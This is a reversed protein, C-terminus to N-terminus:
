KTITCLKDGDHVWGCGWESGGLTANRGSRITSTM